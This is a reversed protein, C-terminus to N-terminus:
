VRLAEGARTGAPIDRWIDQLGWGEGVHISEQTLTTLWVVKGTSGEM